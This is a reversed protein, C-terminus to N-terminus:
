KIAEIFFTNELLTLKITFERGAMSFGFEEPGNGTLAPRGNTTKVAWNEGVLELAFDKRPQSWQAGALPNGEGNLFISPSLLECVADADKEMLATLFREATNRAFSEPSVSVAKLNLVPANNLFRKRGEEYALRYPNALNFNTVQLLGWYILREQRAVVPSLNQSLESEGLSTLRDSFDSANYALVSGGELGFHEFVMLQGAKAKLNRRSDANSGSRIKGDLVMIFFVESTTGLLAVTGPSFLIDRSLITLKESRETTAVIWDRSLSADLREASIGGSSGVGIQRFAAASAESITFCLSLATLITIIFYRM